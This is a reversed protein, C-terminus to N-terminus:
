PMAGVVSLGRARLREARREQAERRRILSRTIEEADTIRSHLQRLEELSVGTLQQILNTTNSVDFM